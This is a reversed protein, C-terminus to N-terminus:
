RIRHPPQLRWGRLFSCRIIIATQSASKKGVIEEEDILFLIVV